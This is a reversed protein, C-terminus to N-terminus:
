LEPVADWIAGREKLWQRLAGLDRDSPLRYAYQVIIMDRTGRRQRLLVTARLSRDRSQAGDVLRIANSVNGRHDDRSVCCSKPPKGAPASRNSAAKSSRRSVPATWCPWCNNPRRARNETGPACPSTASSPESGTKTRACSRM